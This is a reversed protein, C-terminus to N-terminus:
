NLNNSRIGRPAIISLFENITCSPVPLSALKSQELKVEELQPYPYILESLDDDREDMM